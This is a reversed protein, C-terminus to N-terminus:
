GLLQGVDEVRDDLDVRPVAERDGGTAGLGAGVLRDARQGNVVARAFREIGDIVAEFRISHFFDFDHQAHPLEAYAVPNSSAARLEAVFAARTTAIVLSDHDGHVVFFPPAGEHVHDHPSSPPGRTSRSRLLRLAPRRGRHPEPDAEDSTLALMSAIHGGASSGSVIVVRGDAGFRRGEDLVWAIVRKPTSLQDPFTAHPTLRYNASVCVWGHGALRNLLPRAERSKGGSRFAGGHFHM